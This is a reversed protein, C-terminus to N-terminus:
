GNKKMLDALGALDDCRLEVNCTSDGTGGLMYRAHDAGAVDYRYVFVLVRGDKVYRIHPDDAIDCLNKRHHDFLHLLSFCFLALPDCDSNVSFAM